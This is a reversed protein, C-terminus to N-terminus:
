QSRVFCKGQFLSNTLKSPLKDLKHGNKMRFAGKLSIETSRFDSSYM